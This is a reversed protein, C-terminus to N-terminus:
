STTVAKWSRSEKQRQFLVEADRVKSEGSLRYRFHYYVDDADGEGPDVELITATPHLKLFEAKIEKQRPEKWAAAFVAIVVCALLLMRVKM